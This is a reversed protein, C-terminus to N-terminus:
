QNLAPDAAVLAQAIEPSKEGFIETAVQARLPHVQPGQGPAKPAPMPQAIGPARSPAGFRPLAATPRQPSVPAIVDAYDSKLLAPLGESLPKVNVNGWQDTETIGLNGAEDEVLRDSELLDRMVWARAKDAAVHTSLERDLVSRRRTDAAQEMVRQKEADLASFKQEYGRKIQDIEARMQAELARLRDSEGAGNGAPPVDLASDGGDTPDDDGVAQEAMATLQQELMSSLSGELSRQLIAPVGKNLAENFRALMREEFAALRSDLDSGNAGNGSAGGAGSETSM